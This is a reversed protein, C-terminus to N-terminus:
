KRMALDSLTNTLYLGIKQAATLPPMSGLQIKIILQSHDSIGTERVEHRHLASVVNKAFPPTGFAFDIRNGKGNPGAWTIHDRPELHPGAARWLDIAHSTMCKLPAVTRGRGSDAEEPFCSNFDGIVLLPKRRHRKVVDILVRWVADKIPSGAYPIYTGVLHFGASPLHAAVIWQTLDLGHPHWNNLLEPAPQLPYRAFLAVGKKGPPITSSLSYKWGADALRSRIFDGRKPVRYESLAFLDVSPDHELDEIVRDTMSARVNWSVLQFTDM